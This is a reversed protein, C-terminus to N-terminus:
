LGWPSMRSAGRPSRWFDELVGGFTGTCEKFNSHLEKYIGQWTRTAEKMLGVFGQHSRLSDELLGWPNGTSEHTLAVDEGHPFHELWHLWTSRMGIHTKKPSANIPIYSTCTRSHGHKPVSIMIDRVNTKSPVLFMPGSPNAINAPENWVVELQQKKRGGPRSSSKCWTTMM